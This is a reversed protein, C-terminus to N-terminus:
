RLRAWWRPPRVVAGGGQPGPHFGQQLGRIFRRRGNARLIRIREQVPPHTSTWDTPAAGSKRFPNVIYM